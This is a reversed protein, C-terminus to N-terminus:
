EIQNLVHPMFPLSRLTPQPFFSLCMASLECPFVDDLCKQALRRMDDTLQVPLQPYTKLVDDYIDKDFCWRAYRVIRPRNKPQRLSTAMVGGQTYLESRRFSVGFMEKFLCGFEEANKSHETVLRFVFGTEFTLDTEWYLECKHDFNHVIDCLWSQLENPQYPAIHYKILGGMPSVINVSCITFMFSSSLLEHIYSKNDVAMKKLKLQNLCIWIWQWLGNTVRGEYTVLTKGTCNLDNWM